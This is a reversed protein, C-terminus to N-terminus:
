QQTSVDTNQLHVSTLVLTYVGVVLRQHIIRLTPKLQEHHVIFKLVVLRHNHLPLVFDALNLLTDCLQVLDESVKTGHNM